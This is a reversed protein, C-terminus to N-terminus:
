LPVKMGNYEEPFVYDRRLPHGVWDPSTLIRKLNPHGTFVVGIMDFCEREYWNAARYLDSVTPLAADERPLQVKVTIQHRHHYSYLVYVVEIRAEQAPTSETADKKLFDTAGIVTLSQCLFSEDDRLFQLVDKIRDSRVLLYPDGPHDKEVKLVAGPVKSELAAATTAIDKPSGIPETRPSPLASEFYTKTPIIENASAM